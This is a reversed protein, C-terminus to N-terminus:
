DDEHYRDDDDGRDDYRNPHRDGDLDEADDSEFGPEEDDLDEAGSSILEGDEDRLGAEIEADIRANWAASRAERLKVAEPDNWAAENEAASRAFLEGMTVRKGTTM